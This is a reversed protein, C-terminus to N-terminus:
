FTNRYLIGDVERSRLYISYNFEGSKIATKSIVGDALAVCDALFEEFAIRLEDAQRLLNRM